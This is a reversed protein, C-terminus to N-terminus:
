YNIKSNIAHDDVQSEIEDLLARHLENKAVFKGTRLIKHADLYTKQKSLIEQTAEEATTDIQKFYKDFPSKIETM